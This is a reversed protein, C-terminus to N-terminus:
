VRKKKLEAFAEPDNARMEELGKSDKKAWELYTRSDRGAPASKGTTVVKGGLNEKKPISNITDEAMKYDQLALKMFSEKRDATIRGDAIALDVLANANEKKHDEVAKEATAVRAQLEMIAASVAKGDATGSALGLAVYAEVTLVLEDMKRKSKNTQSLLNQISLAAETDPIPQGDKAYLKLARANSPVSVLSGECLEWETVTVREVGTSDMRLEIAKIIIGPSCGKLIGKKAKSKCKLALDDDEDYVPKAVLKTGEIRLNSWQGILQEQNHSWLMVPNANFREFNGGSNLLVFGHSNEQSEDNFVFDEEM